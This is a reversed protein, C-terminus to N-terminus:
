SKCVAKEPPTPLKREAVVPFRKRRGILARLDHAREFEYLRRRPEGSQMRLAHLPMPFFRQRGEAV